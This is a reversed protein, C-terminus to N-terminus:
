LEIRFAEPPDAPLGHRELWGAVQGRTRTWAASPPVGPRWVEDCPDIVGAAYGAAVTRLWEARVPSWRAVVAAQARLREAAVVTADRDPVPTRRRAM